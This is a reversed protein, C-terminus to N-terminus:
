EQDATVARFRATARATLNQIIRSPTPTPNVVVTHPLACHVILM